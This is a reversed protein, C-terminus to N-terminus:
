GPLGVPYQDLFIEVCTGQDLVSSITIKAGLRHCIRQCLYLGLGSSHKDQRGNYGTYGKEFVRPLDEPAIGIGTDRIRLTNKQPMDITICGERTYKLANSLLQGIVFSLWKDDTVLATQVPTYALRIKRAIFEPAFKSVSQGIIVDLDYKKFVYDSSESDLRLFALVMEVYQEIQFLDSSLKRSLPSDEKELTLHMATIPTKIQHVWVTYYEMMDQYKASAEAGVAAVERRLQAIIAQYDADEITAAEPLSAMLAATLKRVECLHAHRRKVRRFDRVAFGCGFLGCLMAPYVTAAVPLHYLYFSVGFIVCFLCWAGIVNRHQRIYAWLFEM